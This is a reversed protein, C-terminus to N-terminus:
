IYIDGLMSVLQGQWLLFFNKNWLRINEGHNKLKDEM